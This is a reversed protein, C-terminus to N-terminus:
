KKFSGPAIEVTRGSVFDRGVLIGDSRMALIRGLPPAEGPASGIVRGAGLDRTTWTMGIEGREFRLTAFTKASGRRSPISGAVHWSVLPGYKTTLDAWERVYDDVFHLGDPALVDEYAPRIEGSRIRGLLREIKSTAAETEPANWLLAAAAQNDAIAVLQDGDHRIEIAAGKAASWKGERLVRAAPRVAPLADFAEGFAAKEIADQVGWRQWVGGVETRNGLLLLITGSDPYVRYLCHYGLETDGGHEIRTRGAAATVFWGYAYSEDGEVKVHPAYFKGLQAPPLVRGARLAREWRYLDTTTSFVDGGGWTRWNRKWTAISGQPALGRYAVAALGPDDVGIVGTRTMGARDFLRRRMYAALSMGSKREVIAALLNYGANSYRWTGAGELPAALIKAVLEGPTVNAFDPVIDGRPLGSTHTLLQHITIAQKDAPVDSLHSAITDEVKLRGEAELALIAAATFQKSQSAIGLATDPTMSRDTARDALGYARHILLRGNRAVLVQGDFGLAEASELFGGLPSPPPATACGVFLLCVVAVRLTFNPM